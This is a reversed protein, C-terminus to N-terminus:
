SLEQLYWTIVQIPINKLSKETFIKLNWLLFKGIKIDKMATRASIPAITWFRLCEKIVMELYLLQEIHEDTVDEDVTKFVSKIEDYVKQQVEPHIATLVM